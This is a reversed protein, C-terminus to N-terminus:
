PCIILAFLFSLALPCEIIMDDIIRYSVPIILFILEEVDLWFYKGLQTNQETIGPSDPKVLIREVVNM